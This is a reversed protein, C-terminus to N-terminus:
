RKSTKMATIQKRIQRIGSVYKPLNEADYYGVVVNKRENLLDVWDKRPRPLRQKKLILEERFIWAAMDAAQFGSQKHKPLFTISGLRDHRDRIAKIEWFARYAQDQFQQNEEFFFAVQERKPLSLQELQPLLMDFFLQFAFYYPHEREIKLDAPVVKEYEPVYLLSGFGFRPKDRAVKILDKIFRNREFVCWNRYPYGKIRMFDRMHFREVEWKKLRADWVKNFKRWDREWAAYAYIGCVHSGPSAGTEDHTGTEDGYFTLMM